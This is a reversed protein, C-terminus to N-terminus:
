SVTGVSLMRGCIQAEGRDSRGHNRSSKGRGRMEGEEDGGRARETEEVEVELFYLVPYLLFHRDGDRRGRGGERPAVGAGGGRAQQM